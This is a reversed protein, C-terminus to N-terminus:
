KVEVPESLRRTKLDLTRLSTADAIFLHTQSFALGVGMSGAKVAALNKRDEAPWVNVSGELGYPRVYKGDLSVAIQWVTHRHARYSTLTKGTKTDLVCVTGDESGTALKQGCPFFAICQVDGEHPRQEWLVKGSDVSWLRCKRDATAV